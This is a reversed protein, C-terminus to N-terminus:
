PMFCTSSRELSTRGVNTWFKGMGPHGIIYAWRETQVEQLATRYKDEVVIM